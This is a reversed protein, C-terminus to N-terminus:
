ADDGCRRTAWAIAIIRNVVAARRDLRQALRVRADERVAPVSADWLEDRRDKVCIADDPVTCPLPMPASSSSDLVSQGAQLRLAHQSVVPTAPVVDIRGYSCDCHKVIQSEFYPVVRLL